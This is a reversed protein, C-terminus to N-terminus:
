TPPFIPGPNPDTNIPTDAETILETGDETELVVAAEVVVPNEGPQIDSAPNPIPTIIQEGDEATIVDGDQTSLWSTEDLTYPEPRANFIPEPDPGLIIPSNQIQPIDLCQPRGCTLVRTNIPMPTGRFDWQWVMKSLNTVFGCRDCTSWASPNDPDVEALKPHWRYAM